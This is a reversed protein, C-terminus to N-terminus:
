HLGSTELTKGNNCLQEATISDDFRLLYKCIEKVASRCKILTEQHLRSFDAYLTSSTGDFRQKISSLSTDVTRNYVETRYTKVADSASSVERHVTQGSYMQPTETM